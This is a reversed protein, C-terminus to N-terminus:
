DLAMLDAQSTGAPLRNDSSYLGLEECAREKATVYSHSAPDDGVLVVGLGPVIGRSKLAAVEAKLEVRIQEAVKKGDIISAAM